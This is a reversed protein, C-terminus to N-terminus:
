KYPTVIIKRGDIRFRIAETLELKKLVKSVNSYRSLTGSFVIANKENMGQYIIDVDYWRSVKRLISELSEEDFTFYGNKWAVADDTDINKVRIVLDAPNLISQQGPKIITKRSSKLDSVEVSGELLSTLTSAEDLYANVDFHTGLVEVMQRNTVVKFPIKKNKAVEFYAEGSLEVRRESHSFAVPYKLFSAANLWVQTGDPLVLHYQGGKPTEISNYVIDGYKSNSRDYELNGEKTKHLNVGYQNAIKGAKADTLSIRAGNALTLIAKNGGPAIDARMTVPHSFPKLAPHSTQYLYTGFAAVCLITAAISAYKWSIFFTPKEELKQINQDITSKLRDHIESIEAKTRDELVDPENSFLDFYQEVASSQKANATGALYADVMRLFEKKNPTSM